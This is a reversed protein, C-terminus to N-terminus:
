EPGSGEDVEPLARRGWAGLLAGAVAAIAGAGLAWWSRTQDFLWWVLSVAAMGSLVISATLLGHASPGRARQKLHKRPFDTM